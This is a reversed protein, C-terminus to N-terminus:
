IEGNALKTFYKLIMDVSPKRTIEYTTKQAKTERTVTYKEGVKGFEAIKQAYEYAQAKSAPMIKKLTNAQKDDEQAQEIAAYIVKMCYNLSGTQNKFENRVSKLTVQKKM